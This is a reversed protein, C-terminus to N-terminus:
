CYYNFFFFFVRVMMILKEPLGLLNSRSLQSSSERSSMNLGAPTALVSAELEKSTKEMINRLLDPKSENRLNGQALYEKLSLIKENIPREPILESPAPIEAVGDLNFSPHYPPEGRRNIIEYRHPDEASLHRVYDLHNKKVLELLNIEFTKLRESFNREETFSMLLEYKNNNKINKDWFLKYANPYLYM